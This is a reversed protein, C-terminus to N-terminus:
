SDEAGQIYLLSNPCSENVRAVHSMWIHSMVWECRRSTEEFILESTLKEHVIRSKNFSVFVEDAIEGTPLRSFKLLFIEWFDSTGDRQMPIQTALDSKPNVKFKSYLIVGWYDLQEIVNSCLM